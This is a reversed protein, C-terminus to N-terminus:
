EADGVVEIGAVECAERLAAASRVAEERGVEGGRLERVAEAVDVDLAQGRALAVARAPRVRGPEHVADMLVRTHQPVHALEDVGIVAPGGGAGAGRRRAHDVGAVVLAVNVRVVKQRRVVLAFPLGSKRSSVWLDRENDQQRQAAVQAHQAEAMHVPFALSAEQMGVDLGGHRRQGDRRGGGSM